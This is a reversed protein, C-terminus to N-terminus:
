GTQIERLQCINGCKDGILFPDTSLPVTPLPFSHISNLKKWLQVSSPPTSPYSDRTTQRVFRPHFSVTPLAPPEHHRFPQGEEARLSLLSASRLILLASSRTVNDCISLTWAGGGGTRSFNKVEFRHKEWEFAFTGWTRDHSLYCHEGIKIEKNFCTSYEKWIKRLIDKPVRLM